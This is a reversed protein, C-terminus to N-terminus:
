RHVLRGGVWTRRVRASSPAALVETLPADLLCLDGAAGAVVRRPPGGPDLPDALYWELATAPDVAEMPGVVAGGRTCRTSAAVIGAWPDASTVPADSGVGVKVGATLLSRLRHLFPLDDPEVERLHHDGRESVLSPQAIVTVGGAVLLPDLDAPLVSGHEIRDGPFAGAEALATVAAVNEARTVAHIAVPRGAAHHAAIRAALESPDLGLSEDALLKAPGISAWGGVVDQPGVGLLVLRQPVDGREVAGRLLATREPGLAFTADTLGTIGAAALCRGTVALDLASPPVREGLWGDLRHLWGTPLGDDGLEVGDPRDAAVRGSGDLLGVRELGATSLMWGLGSRHQVRVAVGPAVADLRHRDIRGHRHEDYGSARVWAPGASAAARLAADVGGGSPVADLDLGAARAAMALLHVHHDHLGPILAGGEGAVVEVEGAPALGVGVDVVVGDVVLVEVNGVHGDVEVCRLLIPHAESGDVTVGTVV